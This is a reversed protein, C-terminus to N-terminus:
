ALEIEEFKKIASAEDNSIIKEKKLGRLWWHKLGYTNINYYYGMTNDSNYYSPLTFNFLFTFHYCELFVWEMEGWESM